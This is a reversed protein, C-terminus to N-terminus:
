RVTVTIGESVTAGQAGVITLSYRTTQRPQHLLCDSHARGGRVLWGPGGRVSVAGTAKFCFYVDAGPKVQTASISLDAFKPLPPGVTLTVTQSASLGARNLATLTYRTTENPRVELCRSLSPWVQDVAPELRVTAANEVGYCLLATEGRPVTTLTAYFQTIRPGQTAPQSVRAPSPQRCSSAGLAVLLLLWLRGVAHGAGGDSGWGSWSCGRWESPM